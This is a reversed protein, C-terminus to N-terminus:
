QRRAPLRRGYAQPSAWEALISPVTIQTVLPTISTIPMNQPEHGHGDGAAVHQLERSGRRSRDTEAGRHGRERRRLDRGRWQTHEEIVGGSDDRCAVDPGRAGGAGDAVYRVAPRATLPHQAFRDLQGLGAVEILVPELDHGAVLEALLVGGVPEAPLGGPDCVGLATPLQM